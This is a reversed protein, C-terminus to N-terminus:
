SSTVIIFFAFIWAEFEISIESGEACDAQITIQQKGFGLVPTRLIETSLVALEDFTGTKEGGFPLLTLGGSFAFLWNIQTAKRDGFNSLQVTLGFGGPGLEMILKPGHAIVSKQESRVYGQKEATANYTGFEEIEITVSGTDDTIYSTTGVIVTADQVPSLATNTVTITVAENILVEESSLSMRLARANWDELYGFLIESHSDDLVFHGAGVMPLEYDVWYHWWDSDSEISHVFFADWDPYYVVHYSFAGQKSAEDLATLVCPEEFYFSENNGSSANEAIITADEITVEGNWITSHNGEIRISGTWTSIISADVPQNESTEGASATIASGILM